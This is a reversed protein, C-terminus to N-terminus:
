KDAQKRSNNARPGPFSTSPVGALFSEFVIEPIARGSEPVEIVVKVTDQSEHLTFNLFACCQREGRVMKRVRAAADSSYILELQLGNRHHERLADANLRAIWELRAQFEPSSLTCAISTPEPSESPM